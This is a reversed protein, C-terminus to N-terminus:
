VRWVITSGCTTCVLRDGSGYYDGGRRFLAREIDEFHSDEPLGVIKAVNKWDHGETLLLDGKEDIRNAVHIRFIDVGNKDVQM